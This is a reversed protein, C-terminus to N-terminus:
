APPSSPGGPDGLADLHNTNNIWLVYPVQGRGCELATMGANDLRLHRLLYDYEARLADALLAAIVGGHTVIVAEGAELTALLQERARRVRELFRDMPEAGPIQTSSPNTRWRRTYAEGYRADVEEPTLGEWAGLHIEALGPEVVPSLRHGNGQAIVRATEESRRMGSSVITRIPRSAFYRSLCAAQQVGLPSLPTDSGGQIRNDRNWVTEAHRVLYWRTM